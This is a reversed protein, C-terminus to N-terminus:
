IFLNYGARDAENLYYAVGGYEIGEILEDKKIGMIDMSMACAVFRIGNAKAQEMLESLSYVKKQKMVWRMMVTGMGGMHMKSLTTRSPGRPMMMGFMSEVMNKPVRVKTNKRLLNLGWFTFFLTVESGMSAAGNAIIFAAMMRDLDNSFIVMTKRKSGDDRVTCVDESRGKRVVANFVGKDHGLSVLTNGTRTCWAPVDLAFGQDTAKIHVSEGERAGDVARKLQIIPGPCQLGTADVDRPPTSAEVAPTSCSPTQITRLFTRDYDRTVVASYTKYGGSLNRAKFGHQLLQRTALYGRLGVQCYVLVEKGKELEGMRSRLEDVPILISGAIAGQEHEGKTRVDLLMQSRADYGAVDEAYFVPMRGDLINQAVFGSMNVADKASGFPPAYALELDSLQDMTLGHRLATAFVDIRKDVGEKGVVQAGLLKRTAPDFLVKISLPFAGPYYTAHSASHTYSKTYVIGFKKANKENLGTVAATLDFVKCIATGQTDRYESQIANAADAAIRGQRNAPGALPVMVKRGSVLDTVEVADGVAFVGQASTRMQRDVVIAGRDNLTIGSTKLFDTDPKVGIALIALDADIREGSGLTIALRGDSHEAFEKVGDQLALKVGNLLLHSHLVSAMELDAPMFVQDTLEVLTVELGRKRLNEAMELGIFGGGVVVAHGANLADVTSKIRDMDGITRLSLVRASDIGPLRPRVPASGPSLLLTDYRETSVTGDAGRVSVTKATSDVAVVESHLRVDVNFRRKFASPTQVILQDRDKIIDGIHYPLGCNAFSIHEGKEFMVIEAHEDLRRMRAAFSAGGAVGGVILIRKGM